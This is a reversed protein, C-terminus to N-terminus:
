DAAHGLPARVLAIGPEAVVATQEAVPFLKPQSRHAIRVLVTQGVRPAAGSLAAVTKDGAALDVDVSLEHRPGLAVRAEVYVGSAARVYIGTVRAPVTQGAADADQAHAAPAVALAAALFTPIPNM